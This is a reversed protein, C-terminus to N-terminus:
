FPIISFNFEYDKYPVMFQQMPLASWSDIGAQGMQIKDICLNTLDAEPIIESHINQKEEGGDLQEIEYHLASASFPAISVIKIGNRSNNFVKWWRIDTKTGTEQARVYPHFQEKVSQNYIGLKAAGKRNSYNENPGRGYYSIKDYEKRLPIQVGFRFMNPMKATSDVTIKETVDIIGNTQISYVMELQANVQPINYQANVKVGGADENITMNELQIDPNKWARFRKHLRAGYDNDTPARWFNPTISKNQKIYETREVQYACLYGTNKNFSVSFKDNHITTHENGNEILLSKSNYLDQKDTKIITNGKFPQLEFQDYAAIHGAPLMNQESTTVYKVNLLWESDNDREFNIPLEILTRQQPKVNLKHVVGSKVPLGNRLVEWELQYDSLNTFFNENFISILGKSADELKTWINQYYYKVEYAHPNPVRDPNFLGNNSYNADKTSAEDFDGDYAFIYKGSKNKWRIAQDIMDWIFGGQFKPYKRILYWYYDFDGLSNGMAHAYECMIMPMPKSGNCYFDCLGYTPYMPCYIDTKGFDHAQENQVMRSPDEAKVWDYIREFIPGYGSENALSWTIISPHNYYCSVHRQNREMQAKDYMPNKALSKEKFGMGHSEINTESVVYIGYRDCLEYWYPDNPYHCTRVANINFEKLLRFDQEMRQKDLVYAKDPDMEHRNVGKILIPQGNVLLQANKIEIKRFGVNQKIVELVKGKRDKLTVYLTYLHPTEATWKQPEKVFLTTQLHEKGKLSSTAVVKENQDCLEIDILNNGKVQLDISVKADRYTEDLLPTIRLDTIHKKNRAYIYTNRAIGTYRYFDQDELYSGDCWRLVMFSILNKQGAKLYKSVDFESSLKSDEGYGVFKGNVWLYLCSTVSGFHIIIEKNSWNNPVDIWRRYFGVHNNKLPVYPPNNEYWGKWAYNVGAYIPQGYGNMEWMGPIRIDDWSSDNFDKHTFDCRRINSEDEQISEDWKFKWLGHLSIFNEAEVYNCEKALTKNEFPFFDAHMPLRNLENIDPDKWENFTQASVIMPVFSVVYFLFLFINSHIKKM